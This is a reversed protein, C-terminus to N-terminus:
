RFLLDNEVNNNYTKNAQPLHYSGYSQSIHQNWPGPTFFTSLYLSSIPGPKNTITDSQEKDQFKYIRM